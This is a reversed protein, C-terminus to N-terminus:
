ANESEFAGNGMILNLSKVELVLNREKLFFQGEKLAPNRERLTLNSDQLILRAEGIPNNREWLAIKCTEFVLILDKQGSNSKKFM